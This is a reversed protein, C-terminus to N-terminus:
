LLPVRKNIHWPTWWPAPLSQMDDARERANGDGKGTRIVEGSRWGLATRCVSLVRKGTNRKRRYGRRSALEHHISKSGEVNRKCHNALNEESSLSPFFFFPFFFSRGLAYLSSCAYLNNQSLDAHSHTPPRWESKISPSSHTCPFSTKDQNQRALSVQRKACWRFQGGGVM